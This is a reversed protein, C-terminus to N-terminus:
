MCDPYIHEIELDRARDRCINYKYTNVKRLNNKAARLFMSNVGYVELIRVIAVYIHFPKENHMRLAIISSFNVHTEVTFINWNKLFVACQSTPKIFIYVIELQIHIHMRM